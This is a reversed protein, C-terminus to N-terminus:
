PSPSSPPEPEPNRQWIMESAGWVIRQCTEFPPPDASVVGVVGWQPVTILGGAMYARVPQEVHIKVWGRGGRSIGVRVGNMPWPNQPCGVVCLYHGNPSCAASAVDTMGLLLLAAYILRHRM